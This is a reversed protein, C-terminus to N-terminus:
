YGLNQYQNIQANINQNIDNIILVCAWITIVTSILTLIIAIVGIRKAKEDKRSLYKIGPIFGLPPFFISFLYVFFEKVASIPPENLQKGCNPCFTSNVLVSQGCFKCPIKEM